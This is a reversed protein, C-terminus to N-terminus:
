KELAEADDSALHLLWLPGLLWLLTSSLTVLWLIGGWSLLSLSLLSGLLLLQFASRMVERLSLLGLVMLGADEPHCRGQRWQRFAAGRYWLRFGGLLSVSAFGSVGLAVFRLPYDPGQAGLFIWICVLSFLVAPWIGGYSLDRWRRATPPAKIGAPTKGAFREDEGAAARTYELEEPWFPIALTTRADMDEPMWPLLELRRRNSIVSCGAVGRGTMHITYKGEPDRASLRLNTSKLLAAETPSRRRAFLYILDEFPALALSESAHADPPGTVVQVLGHTALLRVVEAPIIESSLGWSRM